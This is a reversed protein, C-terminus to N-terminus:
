KDKDSKLYRSLIKKAIPAANDKGTGGHECLIALAITPNEAPAYCIFWGHYSPDKDGATGTKGGIKLGKVRAKIGTGHDVGDIMMTDLVDTTAASFVERWVSPEFEEVTKGRFDRIEKVLYPRMMKGENAISCAIIAAHLVTAKYKSGLGTSAEALQYPSIYTGPSVSKMVPLDFPIETNFAFRNSYERLRSAGLAFGLQAFAINCSDLFAQDLDKIRGHRRWDWFPKGNIMTSKRCNVPFIDKLDLKSELCAAATIIKCISGPEYLSQTLRNRLPRYKNRKYKLYSSWSKLKDPDYTPQSLAALVEGTRPDIAIVAGVYHGLSKYVIGQLDLDITLVLKRGPFLAHHKGILGFSGINRSGESDDHYGLVHALMPGNDFEFARTKKGLPHKLVSRGNRDVILDISGREKEDNASDLMKQAADLSPDTNLANQYASIARPIDGLAHHAMAKGLHAAAVDNRIACAHRFAFIAERYKGSDLFKNGAALQDFKKNLKIGYRMALKFKEEARTFDGEALAIFGLADHIIANDLQVELASDLERKAAINDGAEWHAKALSLHRYLRINDKLNYLLALLLLIAIVFIARRKKLVPRRKRRSMLDYPNQSSFISM